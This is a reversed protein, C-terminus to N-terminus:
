ADSRETLLRHLKSPHVQWPKVGPLLNITQLAACCVESCFWRQKSQPLLPLLFRLVGPYDYASGEEQHCFVMVTDQSTNSFWPLQVVDWKEPDFDIQKFRCGGDQISASYAMGDPFILECHSYPGGTVKRILADFLGTLGPRKTNKYFAVRM